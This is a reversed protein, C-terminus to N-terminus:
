ASLYLFILVRVKSAKRAKVEDKYVDVEEPTQWYDTRAKRTDITKKGHQIAEDMRKLSNNGDMASQVKFVM